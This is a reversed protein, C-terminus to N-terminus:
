FQQLNQYQKIARKSIRKQINKPLNKITKPPHNSNINYIIIKLPYNSIININIPNNNHKNYPEQIGSVALYNM